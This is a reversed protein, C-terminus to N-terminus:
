SKMWPGLSPCQVNATAAPHVPGSIVPSEKAGFQVHAIYKERDYKRGCGPCIYVNESVDHELKKKDCYLCEHDTQFRGM